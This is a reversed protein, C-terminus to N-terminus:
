LGMIARIQQAARGMATAPAENNYFITNLHTNMIPDVSSWEPFYSMTYILGKGYLTGMVFSQVEHRKNPPLQEFFLAWLDPDHMLPQRHDYRVIAQQGEPSLLWELLLWGKEPNPNNSAMSWMHGQAFSYNNAPGKPETTLTWEYPATLALRFSSDTWGQWMAFGGQWQDGAAPPVAPSNAARRTFVLDYWMELMEIMEPGDVLVQKRDDSLWGQGNFLVAWQWSSISWHGNLQVGYVGRDPDTMRVAYNVMDEVTWNEDPLPIGARNFEDVNLVWAMQNFDHPVGWIKGDQMAAQLVFPYLEASQAIASKEWFPTLDMLLGQAVWSPRYQAWTQFVDPPSGSLIMVTLKSIYEAFPYLEVRLKYGPHSKNFAEAIASYAAYTDGYDGYTVLRIEEQAAAPFAVLLALGLAVLFRLRRGRM